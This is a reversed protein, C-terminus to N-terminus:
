ETTVGLLLVKTVVASVVVGHAFGSEVYRRHRVTVPTPVERLHPGEHTAPATAAPGAVIAVTSM